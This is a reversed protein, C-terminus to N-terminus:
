SSALLLARDPSSNYQGCFFIIAFVGCVTAALETNHSIAWFGVLPGFFLFIAVVYSMQRLFWNDSLIAQFFRLVTIAGVLAWAISVFRGITPLWELQLSLLQMVLASLGGYVAYYLWNYASSVYPVRNLDEYIPYGKIFKWFALLSDEEAGSTIIAEM